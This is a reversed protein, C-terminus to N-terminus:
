QTQQLAHVRAVVTPAKVECIRVVIVLAERVGVPAVACRGEGVM